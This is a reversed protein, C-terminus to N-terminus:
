NAIGGVSASLTETYDCTKQPCVKEVGRRKSTKLTLIPWGCQPCPEDLPPNWVAYKCDPYNSCSYFVKGFRSKRQALTGTRCVPCAVGTDKPKQLPEIYRCRPYNSCGIFKGYRGERILLASNCKPCSREAVIQLDTGKKELEAELSRSYDCAPYGTCGIFRGRKGLRIALPRGCKPCAEDLSESTVERRSVNEEKESVLDRFPVWFTRMVPIWDKEGRSIADLEDELKATFDYDVYRTFHQTLFRNVIRGVDTPTFHRKELRVYDRQQLTSIITAYTSPRGIGFEELAKVLSAETYRPPPETFHQEARITVLEVPEGEQL